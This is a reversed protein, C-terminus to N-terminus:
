QSFSIWCMYKHILRYCTFHHVNIKTLIFNVEGTEIAVLPLDPARTCNLSNNYSSELEEFYVEVQSEGEAPQYLGLRDNADFQIPPDFTQEYLIITKQTNNLPIATKPVPDCSLDSGIIDCSYIQLQPWQTTSSTATQKGGFLIKNISGACTFYLDAYCMSM